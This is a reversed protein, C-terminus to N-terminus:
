VVDVKRGASFKRSRPSSPRAARYVRTNRTRPARADPGGRGTVEDGVGRTISRALDFRITPDAYAAAAAAVQLWGCCERSFRRGYIINTNSIWITRRPRPRVRGRFFRRDRPRSNFYVRPICTTPVARPLPDLSLFRVVLFAVVRRVSSYYYIIYTGRTHALGAVRSIKGSDHLRLVAPPRPRELSSIINNNEHVPTRARGTPRSGDGGGGGSCPARDLIAAPWHRGATTAACPRTACAAGPSTGTSIM